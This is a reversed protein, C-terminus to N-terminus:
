KFLLGQQQAPVCDFSFRRLIQYRKGNADKKLLWCADAIFKGHFSLHAYEQMAELYRDRPIRGALAINPDLIFHPDEGGLKMLPRAAKFRKILETVQPQNAIRIFIAHMPYSGYDQLEVLFPKAEMAIQHLRDILKDEIRVPATFRALSIHPRGTPPQPIRYTELLHGRAKEIKHRLAEPLDIVLLYEATRATPHPHQVPDM